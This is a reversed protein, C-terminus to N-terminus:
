SLKNKAFNLLYGYVREASELFKKIKSFRIDLYEHALLNRLKAFEGLTQAVSEDFGELASLDRLLEAYTESLQKKESALLIKAVDISSNVINEVWREINRRFDNDFQYEKQSIDRFKNIESLENQLFDVLRILRRKDEESLSQSRERIAWWDKTIARFDEAGSDATASFRWYLNKDKIIIPQGTRLIESALGSPARNLVVLDTNRGIIKEIDLWLADEGEYDRDEEWEIEQSEPKFYVAVDVDSESIQTGKAYSGFIFAMSVNAWGEFLEKLKILKENTIM